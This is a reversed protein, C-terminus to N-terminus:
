DMLFNQALGRLYELINRQDYSEVITRIRQDAALYKRRKAPPQDGRVFQEYVLDRGKQIARIGDIFKWLNPHDVGFEAQMRRHAAEAYNNTRAEENLTREYVSWTQPPFLPRRRTRNRNLRGVYSDEFWNLIPTLDDTLDVSLAELATDLDDIPVFSLAVIMRADLAFDPDTNYRNLLAEAALKKRMNQTLHFLCGHVACNPFTDRVAGIVAQEFDMSVSSPNLNPWFGKVAEFMRRYTQGEKNPLLAYLVPLVFGGREAMIVFIQSFLAPALSFTGDVYLKEIQNTWAGTSQRGFILIRNEDQEGSDWLLFEEMNDPSIKYMRYEEPIIIAARNAPQPPAAHNVNRIRQIVKRVADKKPMKAQVAASTGQVATNLIVSPIETTETARRKIGAMIVAVRLQAADSGHNHQNKQMLVQGNDTSTHLRAKCENKRECRWFKTSHDASFKDFVYANGEYTVKEKGRKSQVAEM